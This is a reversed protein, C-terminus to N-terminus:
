KHFDILGNVSKANLALPKEVLVPVGAALGHAVATEHDRAANVVILASKSPNDFYPLVNTVSFPRAGFIGCAWLEMANSNNPSHITLVTSIPLIDHLVGLTVRAWRGGGVLAVRKLKDFNFM